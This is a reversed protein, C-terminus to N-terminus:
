GLDHMQEFHTRIAPRTSRIPSACEACGRVGPLLLRGIITILKRKMLTGRSDQHSTAPDLRLLVQIVLERAQGIPLQKLHVRHARPPIIEAHPQRPEHAQRRTPGQEAMTDFGQAASRAAPHRNQLVQDLREAHLSVMLDQAATVM